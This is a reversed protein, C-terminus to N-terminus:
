ANLNSNVESIDVDLLNQLQADDVSMELMLKNSQKASVFSPRHKSLQSNSFKPMGVGKRNKTSNVGGKLDIPNITDDFFRKAKPQQHVLTDRQQKSKVQVFNLM